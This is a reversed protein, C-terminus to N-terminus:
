RYPKLGQQARRANLDALAPPFEKLLKIIQTRTLDTLLAAKGVDDHVAHMVDLVEALIAPADRHSPNLALKGSRVRARLRASPEYGPRPVGMRQELALRVRLRQIAVQRNREPQRSESAQAQVGTPEHTLFVATAVKNRHQGGPGSTRGRTMRCQKLFVEEDLAAPHSYVFESM